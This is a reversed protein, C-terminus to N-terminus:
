ASKPLDTTPKPTCTCRIMEDNEFDEIGAVLRAAADNGRMSRIQDM